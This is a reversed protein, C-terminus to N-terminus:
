PCGVRFEDHTEKATGADDPQHQLQRLLELAQQPDQVAQLRGALEQRAARQRKDRFYVLLDNLWGARDAHALGVEQLEFAKAILPPNDLTERLRDLTPPQGAQQLAYLGALLQRLGPHAIEEVQVEAAARAVLRADALLVELLQREAPAAPASRPSSHPDVPGNGKASAQQHARRLEELRSWVTREQLGLRRSLRGLMLQIKLAGAEGPMPDALAISSLVADVIRRRGEVSQVDERAMMRALKFELADTASELLRRFPEPGQRVLLDCPDLGAPLTAVALEMDHSVFLELARDVGKDGGDDADYVLVVRPVFRRIQQLHKVNLATGMTAVVQPIGLQHAMLVDTYGEVIALYGVKEAAARALDLGYLQESKNFLPSDCSNYYKPAREALPSGPLIRGGFGVVQGRGDRIPFLLRDRFRDYYGNGNSRPAILGVTQLHELDVGDAQAQQLLWSGQLPAYGLGWKRVTEGRLQRQAVYLRAAEADATTGDLLFDAYQKAAWRLVDLLQARGLHTASTPGLDIKARRALLELAERFSIKEFEQVFSLVDGFKGCAWCRYRQRRPDVDFSPRTDDHFPCLGKFTPGAPRLTLYSGVVDVIDNAQKVALVRDNAM